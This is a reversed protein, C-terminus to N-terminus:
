DRLSIRRIRGDGERGLGSQYIRWVSLPDWQGENVYITGTKMQRAVKNAEAEPGYVAGALGYISDNTM